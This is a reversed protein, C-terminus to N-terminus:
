KNTVCSITGITSCTSSVYEWQSLKSEFFMGLLALVMIPLEWMWMGCSALTGQDVTQINGLTTNSQWQNHDIIVKLWKYMYEITQDNAEGPNGGYHVKWWEDETVRYVVQIGEGRKDHVTCIGDKLNMRGWFRAQSWNAWIAFILGLCSDDRTWNCKLRRSWMGYGMLDNKPNRRESSLVAALSHHDSHDNEHDEDDHFCRIWECDSFITVLNEPAHDWQLWWLGRISQPCNQNLPIICSKNRGCPSFINKTNIKRQTRKPTVMMMVRRVVVVWLRIKILM